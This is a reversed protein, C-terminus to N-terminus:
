AKEGMPLGALWHKLRNQLHLARGSWNKAELVKLMIAKTAETREESVTARRDRSIVSFCLCRRKNETGNERESGTKRVSVLRVIGLKKEVERTLAALSHNKRLIDALRRGAAVCPAKLGDPLLQGTPVGSLVWELPIRDDLALVQRLRQALKKYRMVSSYGVDVLHDELWGKMGGKRSRIVTKGCPLTTRLITHDLTSDLDALRSGIRLCTELSRPQDAWDAAIEQPTPTGRLSPSSPRKERIRVQRGIKRVVWSGIETVAFAALIPPTIALLAMWDNNRGITTYSLGGHIAGLVTATNRAIRSLEAKM